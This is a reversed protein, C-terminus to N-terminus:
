RLAGEEAGNMSRAVIRDGAKPPGSWHMAQQERYEVMLCPCRERMIREFAHEARIYLDSTRKAERCAECPVQKHHDNAIHQECLVCCSDYLHNRPVHRLAALHTYWADRMAARADAEARTM